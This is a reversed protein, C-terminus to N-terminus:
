VQDLGFPAEGSNARAGMLVKQLMMGHALDLEGLPAGARVAEFFHECESIYMQNRDESAQHEEAVGQSPVTLKVMDLGMDWHITGQTGVIVVNDRAPQSFIDGHLNCLVGGSTQILFDFCDDTEIELDSLKAVRAFISEFSGAYQYALDLVHCEDLLAGGGLQRSAMYFQRYDEYKHWNPLYSSYEGRIFLTRGARGSDLLQKTKRGSESFRMCFAMMTVLGKERVLSLLEDAGELDKDLPKEILLHMDKEAMARCTQIHLGTPNAVVGADFDARALAEELSAYTQGAGDARAEERRSAQPDVAEVQEFGM